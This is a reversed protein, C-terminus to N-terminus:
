SQHVTLRGVIKGSYELPRGGGMKTKSVCVPLVVSGGHSAEQFIPRTVFEVELNLRFSPIVTEINHGHM